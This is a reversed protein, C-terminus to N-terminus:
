HLTCDSIASGDRGKKFIKELALIHHIVMLGLVVESCDIEYPFYICSLVVQGESYGEWDFLVKKLPCTKM